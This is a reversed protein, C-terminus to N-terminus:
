RVACPLEATVVTGAGPPSTVILLGDLAEVRDALGRLGSGAAPRAGGVGDDAIEIAVGTNTRWLRVSAATASAYKGVNALAECTVFYMALELERPVVDAVDCTVATPVTSRGALSDLAAPLGRDLVAPHLGRALDRLEALSRSLEDTATTVLAEAATPDRRIHSQILGLQMGLAVLRQQAGDHLDRELRRREADGAAVIRQRSARGGALRTHSEAHLHQNELAITAAAVVAEVLEPDEDLPADDLLAAVERGDLAISAVSRGTEPPVTVPNGGADAYEGQDPSRYAVVLAPDGLTRALADGLADGRMTRLERFLEPLGARALRARLVGNVPESSLGLRALEFRSSAALKVFVARLQAGVTRPSLFLRAAIEGNSHGEAALRAIQMEQPTLVFVASPDSPSTVEGTDGLEARAREAWARTGLREFTELADRLHSRAGGGDGYRRLHEALLLATRARDFARDTDAHLRLAAAYAPAPDPSLLARCREALARAWTPAGPQAFAAFMASAAEADERRGALVCAEVLDPASMLAFYPHGRGPSLDGVATLHAVAADARRHRLELIGPGGGAIANAFAGGSSAAAQSAAAADARCEDDKGQHAAFWALMALHTSAANPLGAERALRLGEAAEAAVEFRGGLLGM